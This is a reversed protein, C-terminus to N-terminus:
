DNKVLGRGAAFGSSFAWQFNFGGLRGTVDCAEGCFHLGRVKRSCLDIRHLERLPVGGATVEAKAYGETGDIRLDLRTVALAAARREDRRLTRLPTAACQVLHEVVRRPMRRTLVTAVTSSTGEEAAAKVLATEVESPDAPAPASPLCAGPAKPLSRWSGFPGDPDGPGWLDARVTCKQGESRLKAVALSVDLAVPGSVGRHTFLLSGASRAVREDSPGHVTLVAPLTVGSLEHGIKGTLPVLAPVTAVVEHGFSRALRFAFDTAGTEPISLGGTAVIVRRARQGDVVWFDGERRVESAPVGYREEVGAERLAAHLADLIGQAGVTRPWVKGADEEVTEIGRAAFYARLASPPFGSLLSRLVPPSGTDYDEPRVTGHTLNCRGGGSIRIKRGPPDRGDRLM